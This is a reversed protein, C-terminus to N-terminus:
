RRQETRVGLGVGPKGVPINPARGQDPAPPRAWPGSALLLLGRALEESAVGPGVTFFGRFHLRQWWGPCVRGKQGCFRHAVRPPCCAGAGCLGSLVTNAGLTLPALDWPGSSALEELQVRQRCTARINLALWQPPPRPPHFSSTEWRLGAPLLPIGLQSGGQGRRQLLQSSGQNMHRLLSDLGVSIIHASM